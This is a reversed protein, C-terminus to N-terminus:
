QPHVTHSVTGDRPCKSCTNGHMRQTSVVICWLQLGLPTLKHGQPTTLAVHPEVQLIRVEEQRVLLELPPRAIGSDDAHGTCPRHMALGCPM